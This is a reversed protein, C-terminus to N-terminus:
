WKYGAVGTFHAWWHFNQLMHFSGIEGTVSNEGTLNRTCDGDFIMNNILICQVSNCAFSKWSSLRLWEHDLSSRDLRLADYRALGTLLRARGTLLLLTLLLWLANLQLLLLRLLLLDKYRWLSRQGTFLPQLTPPFSHCFHTGVKHNTSPVVM